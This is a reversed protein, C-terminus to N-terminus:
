NGGYAGKSALDCHEAEKLNGNCSIDLVFVIPNFNTLLNVVDTKIKKLADSLYIGTEECGFENTNIELVSKNINDLVDIIHAGHEKINDSTGLLQFGSLKKDAIKTSIEEDENLGM